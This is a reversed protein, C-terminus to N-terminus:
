APAGETNENSLLNMVLGSLLKPYFFTSKQPMVLDAEAVAKVQEIKTPNLFFVVQNTESKTAAVADEYSKVYIIKEQKEQEERTIGLIKSLILAHLVTVDLSKFVGPISDGFVADM